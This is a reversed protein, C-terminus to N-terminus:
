WYFNSDNIPEWGGTVPNSRCISGPKANKSPKPNEVRVFRSGTWEDWYEFNSKFEDIALADEYTKFIAM